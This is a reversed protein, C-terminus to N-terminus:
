SIRVDNAAPVMEARGGARAAAIVTLRACAREVADDYDLAAVHVVLDLASCAASADYGGAPNPAVSFSRTTSVQLWSAVLPNM